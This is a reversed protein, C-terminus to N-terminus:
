IISYKVKVRSVLGLLLFMLVFGSLYLLNTFLVFLSLICLITQMVPLFRRSVLFTFFMIFFVYYFFLLFCGFFKLQSMADGYITRVNLSEDILKANTYNNDLIRKSVADIIINNLLFNVLGNENYIYNNQAVQLNALPSSAYLYSWFFQRPALSNDFNKNAQGLVLIGNENDYGLSKMRYDGAVGFMFLLSFAIITSYIVKRISFKYYLYIFLFGFVLMVVTSRNIILIPFLYSLFIPFLYIKRNFLIYRYFFTFGMLTIYPLIIVHLVPIGFDFYNYEYGQMTQLLPIGKNYFFELSILVLMIVLVFFVNKDSMSLYKLDQEDIGGKSKCIVNYSIGVFVSIFMTLLLFIVLSFSLEPYLDSWNLSYLSLAIFFSLAYYFFPNLIFNRM